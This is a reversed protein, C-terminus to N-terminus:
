AQERTGGHYEHIRSVNTILSYIFLVIRSELSHMFNNDPTVICESCLDVFEEGGIDIDLKDLLSRNRGACLDSILRM